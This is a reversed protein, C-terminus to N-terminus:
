VNFYYFLTFVGIWIYDVFHWYWIRFEYNLFFFLNNNNLFFLFFSIFLGILGLVVHSAHLSTTFLFASSFIRDNFNFNLKMFYNRIELIQIDIFLVGIIICFFLYFLSKNKFNKNSFNNHSVIIILSSSLLISTGFIIIRTPNAPTIGKPPWFNGMFINPSYANHIYSWFLSIFIILESVIFLLFGNTLINIKKKIYSGIFFNENKLLSFFDLILYYLFFILSIFLFLCSNISWFFNNIRNIFFFILLTFFFPGFSLNVLTINRLTM